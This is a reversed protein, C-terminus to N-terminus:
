ISACRAQSFFCSAQRSWSRAACMLALGVHHSFPLSNRLAGEVMPLMMPGLSPVLQLTDRLLGMQQELELDAPVNPQALASPMSVLIAVVLAAPSWLSSQRAPRRM